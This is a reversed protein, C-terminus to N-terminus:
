QRPKPTFDLEITVQETKGNTVVISPSKFTLPVAGSSPVPNQAEVIARVEYQGPPLSEFLFGRGSVSSGGEQVFQGLAPEFRMLSIIVRSNQPLNGGTVVTKGQIAGTGYPITIRISIEEGAKVEFGSNGRYPDQIVVGDREIRPRARGPFTGAIGGIGLRVTGPRIGSLRFAGKSDPQARSSFGVVSVAPVPEVFLMMTSVAAMLKPDSTGEIAIIGTITAGKRTRLEVGSVDGSSVDVEVPDSYEEIADRNATTVVYKGPRVGSINFEGNTGSIESGGVGALSIPQAPSVIVMLGRVAQGSSSIIRGSISYSAPQEAFKFDVDKTEEGEVVKVINAEVPGEKQNYYVRSYLKKSGSQNRNTESGTSILYNGPPLGYIRYIGRDDTERPAATTINSMVQERNPGVRQLEIRERIVPRGNVDTVKGTIVGGKILRIKVGDVVDSEGLSVQLGLSSLEPAEFAYGPVFPLIYYRGSSVRTFQFKGESDTTTRGLNLIGEAQRILILTLKVNPASKGNILVEGSISGSGQPSAPTQARTVSFSLLLLAAALLIIFVGGSLRPRKVCSERSM